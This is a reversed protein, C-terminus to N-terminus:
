LGFVPRSSDIVRYGVGYGFLAPPVGAVLTRVPSTGHVIRIGVLLLVTAYAGCLVRLEPIAPGAIAMPASAYAVIQVTESVGGREGFRVGDRLEISACLLSVTGVAATLHLGVPAALALVVALVVVASLATSEAVAPVVGPDSVMWGLAFVTAVTVAFTLGPAQDGPRVATAFFRRPSVLM